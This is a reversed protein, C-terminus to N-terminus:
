INTELMHSIIACRVPEAQRGQREAHDQQEHVRGHDVDRERGQGRPEPRARALELPDDGGVVEGKQRNQQRAPSEAVPQPM